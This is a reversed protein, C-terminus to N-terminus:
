EIHEMINTEFLQSKDAFLFPDGDRLKGILQEATIKKQDYETRFRKLCARYNRGANRDGGSKRLRERIKKEYEDYIKGTEGLHEGKYKKLPLYYDWVEFPLLKVQLSYNADQQGYHQAVHKFGGLLDYTWKPICYHMGGICGDDCIRELEVGDVLTTETIKNELNLGIAGVKKSQIAEFVGDLWNKPVIIDNAIHCFVDFKGMKDAIRMQNNMARTLGENRKFFLYSFKNEICVNRIWDILGEDTSGNDWWILEYQERNTNEIISQISMKTYEARNWSLFLIAAKM